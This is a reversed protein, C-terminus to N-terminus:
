CGVVMKSIATAQGVHVVTGSVIITFFRAESLIAFIVAVTV